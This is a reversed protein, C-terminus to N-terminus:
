GSLMVASWAATARQHSRLAFADQEERSVDFERALIEATEGMNLGSIPDTLGLMLAIVPKFHRPRFSGFAALREPAGRARSIRTWIEQAEANFLLPIQSMSEVAASIM